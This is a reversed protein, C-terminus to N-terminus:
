YYYVISVTETAGTLLNTNGVRVEIRSCPLVPFSATGSVGVAVKNDYNVGYSSWVVQVYTNTTTSSHVTVVIYGAYRVPFTWYTYYGAPQSVTERDVLVVSKALNVIDTLENVQSQLSAIRNQLDIIQSNLMAIQSRYYTINEQLWAQLQNLLTKNGDLWSQLRIRENALIQIQSNLSSIEHDKETIQSNLSSIVSTYNAVAGILGAALVVCVVGLAIAINRGVVKREGM